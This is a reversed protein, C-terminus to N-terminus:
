SAQHDFVACQFENPSEVSVQKSYIDLYTALVDIRCTDVTSLPLKFKGGFVACQFENSSEVSVQKSYVDLYTALVDM